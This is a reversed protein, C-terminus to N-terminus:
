RQLAIKYAGSSGQRAGTVGRLHPRMSEKEEADRLADIEKGRARDEAAEKAADAAALLAAETDTM